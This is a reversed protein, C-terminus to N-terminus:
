QNHAHDRDEHEVTITVTISTNNKSANIIAPIIYQLMEAKFPEPDLITKGYGAVDIEIKPM